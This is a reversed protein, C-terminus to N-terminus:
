RNHVTPSRASCHGYPSGYGCPRGITHRWATVAPQAGAFAPQHGGEYDYYGACSYLFDCTVTSRTRHGEEDTRELTVTWRASETSWDAALM